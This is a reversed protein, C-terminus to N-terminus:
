LDVRFRQGRPFRLSGKSTYGQFQVTLQKGFYREKNEWLEKLSEQTGDMAVDVTGGNPLKCIWKGLKGMLKGNGEEASVVEVEIDMMVKIKLLGPSRKHEYPMDADRHMAGEYGDTLFQHFHKEEAEKSPTFHTPVLRLVSSFAPNDQIKQRTELGRDKWNGEGVTDYVHYQIKTHEPHIEDRKIISALREFDAKLEHNYLEGDLVADTFLAELAATIHPLTTIKKQTRSFLEAKGGKVVAICRFGDLKPQTWSPYKVYKEKDEMPFALMPEVGELDTIGAQAKALDEVYGEKVKKDWLQKAKIAAQQTPTTENKKGINKGEKILDHTVQLKGGVHGYETKVCGCTNDEPGDVDTTQFSEVTWQQIAGTSTKIYLTPLASM